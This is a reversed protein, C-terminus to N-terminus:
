GKLLQVSNISLSVSADINNQALFSSIKDTWEQMERATLMQITGVDINFRGFFERWQESLNTIGKADLYGGYWALAQQLAMLTERKEHAINYLRGIIADSAGRPVAYAENKIGEIRAYMQALVEADLECLDGEVVEPTTREAPLPVPFGCHPCSVRYREFPQQCVLGTGGHKIVEKDIKEFTGGVNLNTCYRFPIADSPASVGRGQRDLTWERHCLDMVLTNLWPDLRMVAHRFVNGVHDIIKFFPKKSSAIYARRQEDTFTDWVVQTADDLLIRGPRLVQQVFLPFSETKRALSVVEAAPFDVGEGLLDVNILQLVQRREFRDFIDNRLDEPTDAHVVEAPVGAARFAEAIEKATTVDVAFTIGLKGPAIRQYHKVVDGVFTDSAHVAACLKAHVLEGSPGVPVESYDVDSPVTYIKYDLLYGMHILERFAPALIMVDALGDTASSLGAGDARKPTASVLLGQVNPHIFLSVAKGWQNKKLFHHGEDGVWKTVQTIWPWEPSESTKRSLTAVGAVGIPANPDVYHRGLKRLHLKRAAKITDDSALIRHRIGNRALTLSMQTVLKDRHALLCGAGIHRRMVESFVVTKGAGCPAVYFVTKFFLAWAQEIQAIGRSQYFRLKIM